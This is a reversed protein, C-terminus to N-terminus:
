SSNKPQEPEESQEDDRQEPQEDENQQEDGELAQNARELLSAAKDARAAVAYLKDALEGLDEEDGQKLEKVANQLESTAEKVVESPKM